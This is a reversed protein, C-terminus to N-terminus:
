RSHASSSTSVSFLAGAATASSITSRSFSSDYSIPRWSEGRRAGGVLPLFLRALAFYLPYAERPALYPSGAITQFSGTDGFDMGPLLTARFVAFAAVAVCLAAVSARHGLDANANRPSSPM